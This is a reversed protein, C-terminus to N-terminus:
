AQLEYGLEEMKVLGSDVAQERKLAYFEAITQRRRAHVLNVLLPALYIFLSVLFYWGLYSIQLLFFQKREGQMLRTSLSIAREAGLDPNDALFWDTLAYSFYKRIFIVFFVVAIGSGMILITSNRDMQEWVLRLAQEDGAKNEQYLLQTDLSLTFWLIQYAIVPLAWVYLRFNKIFCAKLAAVYKKKHFFSFLLKAPPAGERERNRSFWANSGLVLMPKLFIQFLLFCVSSLTLWPVLSQRLQGLQSFLHQWQAESFPANSFVIDFWSFIEHGVVQRVLLLRLQSYFLSIASLMLMIAFAQWTSGLLSRRAKLKLDSISWELKM